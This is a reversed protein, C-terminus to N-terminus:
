HYYFGCQGSFYGNCNRGYPCVQHRSRIDSDHFLQQLNQQVGMSPNGSSQMANQQMSFQPTSSQPTVYQNLGTTANSNLQSGFTFTGNQQSGIMPTHNQQMANQQMANQQMANQQLGLMPNFNQGFGNTSGIMPTGNGNQQSSNPPQQPVFTRLDSLDSALGDLTSKTATADEDTLDITAKGDNVKRKTSDDTKPAPKKKKKSQEPKTAADDSTKKKKKKSQEPKTAADDFTTKKKAPPNKPGGKKAARPPNRRIKCHDSRLNLPPPGGYIHEYHRDWDFAFGVDFENGEVTYNHTQELGGHDDSDIRHLKKVIASIANKFVGRHLLENKTSRVVVLTSKLHKKKPDRNRREGGGSNPSCESVTIIYSHKLAPNQALLDEDVPTSVYETDVFKRDMQLLKRATFQDNIQDITSPSANMNRKGASADYGGDADPNIVDDDDVDDDDEDENVYTEDDNSAAAAAAAGSAASATVPAAPRTQSSPTTLVPFARELTIIHATVRGAIDSRKATTALNLMENLLGHHVSAAALRVYVNTDNLLPSNSELQTFIRNFETNFDSAM